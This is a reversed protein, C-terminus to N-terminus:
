SFEFRCWDYNYIDKYCGELGNHDKVNSYQNWNILEIALMDWSFEDGYEDLITLNDKNKNYFNELESISSYYKTKQFLPRWGGSSKGIHLETLKRELDYLYDKDYFCNEEIMKMIKSSDKKKFYYNTGM